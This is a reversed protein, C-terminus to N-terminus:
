AIGLDRQWVEVAPKCAEDYRDAAEIVAKKQQGVPLARAAEMDKELQNAFEATAKRRKTWAAEYIEEAIKVM